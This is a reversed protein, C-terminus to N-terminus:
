FSTRKHRYFLRFASGVVTLPSKRSRKLSVIGNQRSSGSPVWLLLRNTARKKLYLPESLELPSLCLVDDGKHNKWTQRLRVFHFSGRPPASIAFNHTVHKGKLDENNERRDVVEWSGDSGDNSVELVWSKLYCWSGTRISYSAPAVRRGKFDYCIWSDPEDQSWFQSDTGLVNKAEALRSSATVEVIGKEHVNGRCERTM